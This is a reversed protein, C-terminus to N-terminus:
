EAKWNLSNGKKRNCSICCPVLNESDESGGKSRPIEHDVTINEETLKVNCYFCHKGRKLWYEKLQKRRARERQVVCRKVGGLRIKKKRKLNKVSPPKCM